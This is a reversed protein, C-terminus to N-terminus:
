EEGWIEIERELRLNFKEEVRREIETILWLIETAKAGGNNIIFNAHKTSVVAKGMTLGKAGIKEILEGAFYGEPNKFISGASLENVPQREKRIQTFRKMLDQIREKDGKKLLLNAELIIVGEHKFNCERYKFSLDSAFKKEVRKERNLFTVSEIIDALCNGNFGANNLVCGGITGPINIAFELGNLGQDATLISLYQVSVGAGVRVNEQHFSIKKFGEGLKIVMGRIGKDLVLLNTGNGIIYFPLHNDQCISITTVLEEITNPSCFIDAPGGIKLSTHNMLPENWKILKSIEKEKFEHSIKSYNIEKKM